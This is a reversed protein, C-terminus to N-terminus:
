EVQHGVVLLSVKANEEGDPSIGISTGASCLSEFLCTAVHFQNCRYDPLTYVCFSHGMDGYNYCGHSQTYQMPSPFIGASLDYVTLLHRIMLYRKIIDKSGGTGGTWYEGIFEAHEPKLKDIFFQDSNLRCLICISMACFIALYNM